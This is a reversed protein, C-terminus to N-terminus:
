VPRKKYNLYHRYWKNHYDNKKYGKGNYKEVFAEIQTMTLNRQGERLRLPKHMGTSLLFHTFLQLHMDEDLKMQDVFDDINKCGCAKWHFGMIQYKGWSASQLACEEDVAMARSVQQWREDMTKPYPRSGWNPYLIDAYRPNIETGIVVGKDNELPITYDDPLKGKAKLLRWFVHPEFLILPRGKADFGKGSGETMETAYVSAVEIGLIKASDALAKSTPM